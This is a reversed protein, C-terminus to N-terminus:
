FIFVTRKKGLECWINRINAKNGKSLSTRYLFQELLHGFQEKEGDRISLKQKTGTM